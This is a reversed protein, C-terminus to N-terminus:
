GARAMPESLAMPDSPMADTERVFLREVQEASM